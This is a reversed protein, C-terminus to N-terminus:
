SVCKDQSFISARTEPLRVGNESPIFDMKSGMKSGYTLFYCSFKVLSFLLNMVNLHETKINEVM